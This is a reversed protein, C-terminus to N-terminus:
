ISLLPLPLQLCVNQMLLFAWWSLVTALYLPIDSLNSPDYSALASAHLSIQTQIFIYTHTCLVADLCGYKGNLMFWPFYLAVNFFLAKSYYKIINWHM